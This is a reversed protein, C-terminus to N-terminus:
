SEGTRVSSEFRAIPDLAAVAPLAPAKRVARALVRGATAWLIALDFGISWNEVYFLDLRRYAGFAPNDRAEAQWLGTIGPRVALRRSRLEEDFQAVEAALAPRPGVISMEGRLVNVLQPLEDLSTDRLLRGVRTVRPDRALKFLPGGARDNRDVLAALRREADPVMTRLKLVEFRRGHRGVRDNRFLVPGGDELKIALAAAAMVPAAVVLGAVALVVDLARKGAVHWGTGRAVQLSVVPEHALSQWRLRRHSLGRLGTSVQVEAAVALLERTLGQLRDFPVATSAVIVGSAGSARYAAVADDLTGLWPLGTGSRAVADREPSPRDGDRRDGAVYGCLTYGYEPHTRMLDDIAAAEDNGGVLLLPRILRGSARSARLWGCYLSRGLGVLAWAAVAVAVWREASLDVDLARATVAAGAAGAISAHAIGQLDAARGGVTRWAYLGQTALAGMAVAVGALQVPVRDWPPVPGLVASVTVVLALLDVAALRRRLSIHTVDHRIRPAARTGADGGTSSVDDLRDSAARAGAEQFM